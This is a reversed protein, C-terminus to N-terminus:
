HISQNTGLLNVGKALVKYGVGSRVYDGCVAHGAAAVVVFVLLM